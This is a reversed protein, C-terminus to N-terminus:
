TLLSLISREHLIKKETPSARLAQKRTSRRTRYVKYRVKFILYTILHPNPDGVYKRWGVIELTSFASKMLTTIKLDCNLFPLKPLHLRCPQSLKAYKKKKEINTRRLLNDKRVM